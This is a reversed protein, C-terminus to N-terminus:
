LWAAIIPRGGLRDQVQEAAALFTDDKLARFFNQSDASMKFGLVRLTADPSNLLSNRFDADVLARGLLEQVDELTIEKGTQAM